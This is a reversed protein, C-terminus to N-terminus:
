WVDCYKISLNKSKCPNELNNLPPSKIKKDVPNETSIHNLYIRMSQVNVFKHIGYM